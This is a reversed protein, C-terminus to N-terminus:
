RRSQLVCLGAPDRQPSRYRGAVIQPHDGVFMSEVPRDVGCIERARDFIRVDPKRIGETESILVVDFFSALGLSDIKRSQWETQGNTVIGLRTGAM